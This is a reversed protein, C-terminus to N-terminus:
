EIKRSTKKRENGSLSALEKMELSIIGKKGLYKIRFENISEINILKDRAEAIEAELKNFDKM